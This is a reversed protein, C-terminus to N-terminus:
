LAKLWSKYLGQDGSWALLCLARFTKSYKKPSHQAPYHLSYSVFIVSVSYSSIAGVKGAKVTKVSFNMLSTGGAVCSTLSKRSHHRTSTTTTSMSFSFAILSSNVKSQLWREPWSRYVSAMPQPTIPQHLPLISPLRLIIPCSFLYRKLM